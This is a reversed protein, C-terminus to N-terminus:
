FGGQASLETLSTDRTLDLLLSIRAREIKKRTELRRNNSKALWHDLFYLDPLM